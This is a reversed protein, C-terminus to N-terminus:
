ADSGRAPARDSCRSRTHSAKPPNIPWRIGVDNPLDLPADVGVEEKDITPAAVRSLIAVWEDRGLTVLAFWASVTEGNLALLNRLYEGYKKPNSEALPHILKWFTVYKEDETLEARLEGYDSEIIWTPAGGSPSVETRWPLRLEAFIAEFRWIVESADEHDFRRGVTQFYM